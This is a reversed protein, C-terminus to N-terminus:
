SSPITCNSSHPPLGLGVTRVGGTDDIPEISAVSRRELDILVSLGRVAPVVAFRTYTQYPPSSTDICDYALGQWMGRLSHPHGLSVILQAGVLAGTSRTWPVARAVVYPRHGLLGRGLRSVRLIQEADNIQAPLLAPLSGALVNRPLTLTTRTEVVRPSLQSSLVLSFAIGLGMGTLMLRVHQGRM